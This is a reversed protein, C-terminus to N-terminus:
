CSFLQIRDQAVADGDFVIEIKTKAGEDDHGWLFDAVAVIAIVRSPAVAATDNFSELLHAVLDLFLQFDFFLRFLDVLEDVTEM